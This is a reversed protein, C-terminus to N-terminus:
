YDSNLNGKLNGISSMYNNKALLIMIYIFEKKRYNKRLMKKNQSIIMM